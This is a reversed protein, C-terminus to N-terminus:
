RRLDREPELAADGSVCVLELADVDPPLGAEKLDPVRAGPPLGWRKKRAPDSSYAVLRAQPGVVVSRTQQTFVPDAGPGTYTTLPPRYQAEAYADVWCGLAANTGGDGKYVLPQPATAACSALLVSLAATYASEM